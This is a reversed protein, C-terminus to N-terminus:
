VGRPPRADWWRLGGAASNALGSAMPLGHTGGVPGVGGFKYTWLGDPPCHTGGVSGGGCFKYTWLGYPPGHTGGVFGGGGFKYTWLSDPPGHAGSVAGGAVSITHGSATPPAM